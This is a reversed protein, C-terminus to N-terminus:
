REVPDAKATRPRVIPNRVDLPLALRFSQGLEPPLPPFPAAKLVARRYNEDLEASGSSRTLTASVVSGDAMITVTVTVVGQVGEVASAVSLLKRWDTYPGLRRLVQRFYDKRRKDRPDVDIGSGQGTGLAHAISGPGSNGGAGAPGAGAQGGNGPGPAGGANSAHLISQMRTAVEQEADVNDTPRDRVDAPVSPTGQNVMPRALAVIATDRHDEGPAGDRVGRGASAHASGEVSGGAQRPREGVGPALEGAGLVGGPRQVPGWADGGSSPDVKSPRRREPRHTDADRRGEALFTLEMPDRSARWDERSARRRSARIRQIQSRDLRSMVDPSLLIEDDRDALNIAPAPSTDTGGRGAHGSDLRPMAEGGGRAVAQSSPEAPPHLLPSSDIVTPLEIEVTEETPAPRAARAPAAAKPGLSAAVLLGGLGLAVAHGV